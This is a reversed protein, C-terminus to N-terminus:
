IEPHNYPAICGDPMLAISLAIAYHQVQVRTAPTNATDIIDHIKLPIVGNPPFAWWSGDQYFPDSFGKGECWSQCVAKAAALLNPYITSRDSESNM